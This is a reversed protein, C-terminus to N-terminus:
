SEKKLKKLSKSLDIVSPTAICLSSYTGVLVGIMLAFTFGRIAEGGFIFITLLVMFTSISTNVTRSLTSNLASNVVEKEEQKKHIGLYERIRDFVVVTDNISYGVVTLIAAIFAQDIEMSFPLVGYFISFLGLVVLVDHFTAFLAGLGFQWKRFRLVIYLFIILLAFGIAWISSTMIDDSIRKDVKRTEHLTYQSNSWGTESDFNSTEGVVVGLGEHLRSEVLSDVNMENVNADILHKTTIKVQWDNEIVKVEPTQKIGEDSVFVNGLEAKIAETNAVESFEVLYTRGGVFEVGLDLGRMAMSAIGGAIVLASIVYYLKRKKVWGFNVNTFANETLKSAFTITRKKDLMRTFILRTIFIAAFLSCFIGIILTTAFSEITGTGFWKLVIATLLTTVNADVIAGYARNYGDKIALRMGKGARVEERIREYILVNADVSMGITLVIGAIGALTLSAQLSALTGLIFFINAILAIDAVLGAKSYYFIMYVLVVGLAIIVSMLGKEINDAGLEPGVVSEDIIEAPAPLAGAKLINALDTAEQQTFSGSIVSVGNPIEGNVSPASYVYNDLVIAICGKPQQSAAEGTWVKWTEAGVDDMVMQVQSESTFQDFDQRADVINEGDIQPKGDSTNKKIGYLPVFGDTAKNGWLLRLETPFVAKVVRHEFIKNLAATDAVPAFGVMAGPAFYTQGQENQTINFQIRSMVPALKTAGTEGTSPATLVDSSTDNDEFTSTLLDEASMTGDDADDMTMVTPDEIATTDIQDAALTTDAADQVVTSDMPIEATITTDIAFPDPLTDALAALSDALEPYMFNRYVSDAEQLFAATEFNQYADWFELNATSQLLRRVREKDKVGPLEVFIRGSLEQTEITPQSVGFKNIRNELIHRTNAIAAQARESLIALVEANDVQPDPFIDKDGLHFLIAMKYRNPDNPDNTLPVIENWARGFLTIFDEQTSTQMDYARNLVQNFTTDTRGNPGALNKVLDYISVELTVSMGGQLDLGFAIERDKCEQYTYGILPYIEDAAHDKLYQQVYHNHVSDLQVPNLTDGALTTENRVRQVEGDAYATASDETQGVFYTFSMQYLCALTLLITFVWIASRNQM